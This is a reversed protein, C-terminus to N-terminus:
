LFSTDIIGSSMKLLAARWTHIAPQMRTLMLCKIIKGKMRCFIAIIKVDTFSFIPAHEFMVFVQIVDFEFFSYFCEVCWKEVELLEVFLSRTHIFNFNQSQWCSYFQLTSMEVTEVRLLKNNSAKSCFQSLWICLFEFKKRSQLNKHTQCM